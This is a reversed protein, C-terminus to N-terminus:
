IRNKYNENSLLNFNRKDDHFIIELYLDKEKESAKLFEGRFRLVYAKKPMGYFEKNISYGIEEYHKKFHMMYKETKTFNM